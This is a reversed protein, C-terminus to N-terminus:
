DLTLGLYPRNSGQIMKQITIGGLPKIMGFHSVKGRGEFLPGGGPLRIRYSQAPIASLLNAALGPLTEPRSMLETVECLGPGAMRCFAYATEGAEGFCVRAGGYRRNIGDAYALAREDWLASGDRKLLLEGRLRNMQRYTLLVRRRSYGASIRRLEEASVTVFRTQFNPAYGYGAYYDYLGRSAPLLFSFRDGRRLGVHGACRLLAGMYGRSRYEPLTAAGYIYHAQVAKGDQAIAAPLMHVMAAIHEGARYILCDQPRFANNFFFDTPRKEEDFCIRWIRELEAQMGWRALMITNNSM